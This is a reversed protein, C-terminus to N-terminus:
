GVMTQPTTFELLGEIGNEVGVGSQKRGAFPSQPDLLHVSNIWVTGVELRAGIARAQALDNSWVSGGLGFESDNARRVVEDVESFRLLPVIPGFPEEVVVRADDPPNDVVAPPIFYGPGAPVEGGALFRHGAARTAAILEKVREYQPRNQVPGLMVGEQTGPGMPAAKAAAAFAQAFADYIADHVYIRKAAICVQGSNLFAGMFLKRAVKAVDVDPMVIAADNGGLELTLHKLTPAASAMVRRGTATSGTFAVKAIGPHATMWPGIADGGCLVNLVGAPFLDAALEAMRLTALPTFPSPKLIVTNGALLAPALKWVALTLPFNWPAIAAVVGLPVRRTSWNVGAQDTREAVPLSMKAVSRLWHVCGLVEARALALPRGQERTLLLALEDVHEKIRAGLAELRERRQEIPTRSWPEFAARAAQVTTDLLERTCDPVHAIVEETAPDVVTLSAPLDLLQGNSLPRYTSTM